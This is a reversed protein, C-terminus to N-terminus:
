NMEYKYQEHMFLNIDKVIRAAIEDSSTRSNLEKWFPFTPHDESLYPFTSFQKSQTKPNSEIEFAFDEPVTIDLIDFFPDFYPHYPDKYISNM